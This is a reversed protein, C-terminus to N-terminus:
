ADDPFIRVGVQLHVDLIGAARCDHPVELHDRRVGELPVARRTLIEGRVHSLRHVGARARGLDGAFAILPARRFVDLQVVADEPDNTLKRFATDRRVLQVELAISLLESIAAIFRPKAAQATVAPTTETPM